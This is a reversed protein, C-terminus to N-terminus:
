YISKSVENSPTSEGASNYATVTFYYTTRATLSDVVYSTANGVTITRTYLGSATGIYVKYGDLTPDVVPTWALTATTTAPPPPSSPSVILTVPVKTTTRTGVKITIMGTYTGAALGNANVAVTLPATTTMVTTAPSVTLWSANDSSALRTQNTRKRYVSLTQDSPNTSNQAVTFTLSGQSTTLALCESSLGLGILVAIILIKWLSITTSSHGTSHFETTQQTHGM